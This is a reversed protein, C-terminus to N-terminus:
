DLWTTDGAAVIGTTVTGGYISTAGTYTNASSLTLIGTGTKTLGGAGSGISGSITTEGAGGVTLLNAGNSVNGGVLLDSFSSNTWTQSGGLIINANITLDLAGARMSIGATPSAPSITLLFGDANVRVPSNRDQQTLSRITM